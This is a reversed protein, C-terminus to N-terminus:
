PEGGLANLNAVLEAKALPLLVVVPGDGARLVIARRDRHRGVLVRTTQGDLTLAPSVLTIESSVEVVETAEM